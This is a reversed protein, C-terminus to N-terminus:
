EMASAAFRAIQGTSTKVSLVATDVAPQEVLTIHNFGATRVGIPLAGLLETQLLWPSGVAPDVPDSTLLPWGVAAGDVAKKIAKLYPAIQARFWAAPSFLTM